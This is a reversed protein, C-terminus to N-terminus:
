SAQIKEPYRTVGVLDPAIKHGAIASARFAYRTNPREERKVDRYGISSGILVACDEQGVIIIVPYFVLASALRPQWVQGELERGVTAM